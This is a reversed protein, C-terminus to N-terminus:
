RARRKAFDGSGDGAVGGSPCGGNGACALLGFAQPLGALIDEATMCYATLQERAADGALGHVFVGLRAADYADKGAALFAAIVGSLVDGSGGTAMGDNGTGNVTFRDARECTITDNGKCVVTCAYREACLVACRLRQQSVAAPNELGLLAALESEHPTLVVDRERFVPALLKEKGAIARLADADLVLRRCRTRSLFSLVARFTSERRGLGPGILVADAEESLALLAETQEEELFRSDRSGVAKKVAEPLLIEYVPLLGRPAALLALGAGSKLCARVCLAAAGTMGESGALALVKGFTGKHGYPDRAPLLAAAEPLSDRSLFCRDGAAAARYAEEPVAVPKVSLVGCHARGPMIVNGVKPYGFTVTEDAEISEPFAAGTAGDIGAAIDASLVYSAYRNVTRIMEALVGDTDRKRVPDFGTGLLCELVADCRSLVAALEDRVTETFAAKETIRRVPVGAKLLKEEFFRCNGNVTEAGGPAFLWVSVSVGHRALKEAACLGDAGNNGGGCLVAVRRFAMGREFLAEAASEIMRILDCGLTEVAYTDATKTEQPTILRM